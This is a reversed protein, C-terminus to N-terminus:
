IKKREYFEIAVLIISILLYFFTNEFIKLLHLKNFLKELFFLIFFPTLIITLKIILILYHKTLNKFNKLINNLKESEEIDSQFINILDKMLRITLLLSKTIKIKKLIAYSILTFLTTILFSL